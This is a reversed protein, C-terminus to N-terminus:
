FLLRRPANLFSREVSGAGGGSASADGGGGGSAAAEAAAHGWEDYDDELPANYLEISADNMM